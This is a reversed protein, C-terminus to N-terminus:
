ITPCFEKEKKGKEKTKDVNEFKMKNERPM